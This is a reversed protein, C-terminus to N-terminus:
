LKSVLVHLNSVFGPDPNKRDIAIVSYSAYIGGRLDSGHLKVDVVEYLEGKVLRQANVTAKVVDGSKFNM